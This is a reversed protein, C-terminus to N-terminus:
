RPSKFTFYCDHVDQGNQRGTKFYANQTNEWLNTGSMVTSKGVAGIGFLVAASTDASVDVSAIVTAPSQPVLVVGNQAVLM